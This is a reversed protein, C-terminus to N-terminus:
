KTSVPALTGSRRCYQCVANAKDAVLKSMQAIMAKGVMLESNLSGNAQKLEQIEKEQKRKIGELQERRAIEENLEEQLMNRERLVAQQLKMDFKQQQVKLEGDIRSRWYADRKDIAELVEQSPLKTSEEAERCSTGLSATTAASPTPPFELFGEIEEATLTVSSTKGESGSKLPSSPHQSPAAVTAEGMLDSFTLDASSVSKTTDGM